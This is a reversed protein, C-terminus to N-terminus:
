KEKKDFNFHKEYTGNGTAVTGLEKNHNIL